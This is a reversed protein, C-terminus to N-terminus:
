SGRNGRGHRYNEFLLGAVTILVAALGAAALWLKITALGLAMLAVSLGIGLPWYSAPSFWGISGAGEEITATDEDSPRPPIRRAVFWFYGACIACLTGASLLVVTGAPDLTSQVATWWAYAIGLGYLFASVIGFTRFETWM